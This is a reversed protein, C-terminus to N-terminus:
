SALLARSVALAEDLLDEMSRTNGPAVFLEWCSRMMAEHLLVALQARRDGPALGERAEVLAILKREREGGSRIMRQMLQPERSVAAVFAGAQEPSVRILRIHQRTMAVLADLLDSPAPAAGPGPASALFREVAEPDLADEPYGIIADDKSPFYNFFTRRSIGVQECVQEITFGHLGHEATLRRAAESIRLTTEQRRKERLGTASEAM